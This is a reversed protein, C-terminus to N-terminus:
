SRGEGPLLGLLVPEESTAAACPSRGRGFGVFEGQPWGSGCGRRAGHQESGRPSSGAWIPCPNDCSKILLHFIVEWTAKFFIYGQKKEWLTPNLHFFTVSTFLPCGGLAACGLNQTVDM